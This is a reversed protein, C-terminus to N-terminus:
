DANGLAVIRHLDFRLQAPRQWVGEPRSGRVHLYKVAATDAPRFRQAVVAGDPGVALVVPRDDRALCGARPGCMVRSLNSRSTASATISIGFRKRRSIFLRASITSAAGCGSRRASISM